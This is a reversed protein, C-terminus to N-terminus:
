ERIICVRRERPKARVVRAAKRSAWGTTPHAASQRNWPCWASACAIGPLVGPLEARLLLAQWVVSVLATWLSGAGTSEGM